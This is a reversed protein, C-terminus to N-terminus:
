QTRAGPFFHIFAQMKQCQVNALHQFLGKFGASGGEPIVPGDIPVPAIELVTKIDIAALAPIALPGAAIAKDLANDLGAPGGEETGPALLASGAPPSSDQGAMDPGPDKETIRDWRNAVPM